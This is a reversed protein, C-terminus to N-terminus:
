GASGEVENGAERVKAALEARNRAALKRLLNTVHREITKRSLFLSAAIEPNSAGTAVLKAVELERASLLGLADASRAALPGRRWTRVGLRRLERVAVNAVTRAGCEEATRAVSELLDGATSRRDVCLARALDLQAWLADLHRQLRVAEAVVGELQPVAEAAEGAQLTVVAEARARWFPEAHGADHHPEQADWDAIKRRAEDIRGLRGLVEASALLLERSCRICGVAEADAKAGSLYEVIRREERRGDIRALTSAATQRLDIRFHPDAEAIVREVRALGESWDRELAILAAVRRTASPKAGPQGLRRALDEADAVITEAEDLRALRFLCSALEYAAGVALTPLVLARAENWAPRLTAEAAGFAGFLRASAGGNILAQLRRREDFGRAAAAIEDASRLAGDPDADHLALRFELQAAAIYAEREGTALAAVTGDAPVLSRRQRAVNAALARGDPDDARAALLAV